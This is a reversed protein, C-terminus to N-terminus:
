TPPLQQRFILTGRHFKLWELLGDKSVDLKLYYAGVRWEFVIGGDGCPVVNSPPDIQADRMQYALQGAQSLVTRSPWEIGDDDVDGCFPAWEILTDAIRDWLTADERSQYRVLLHRDEACTGRAGTSGLLTCDTM